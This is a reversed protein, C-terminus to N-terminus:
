RHPAQIVEQCGNYNCIRSAKDTHEFGHLADCAPCVTTILNKSNSANTGKRLMIFKHRKLNRFTWWKRFPHDRPDRTIRYKIIDAKVIWSVCGILWHSAEGLLPWEPMSEPFFFDGTVWALSAMVGWGVVATVNEYLRWLRHDSYKM